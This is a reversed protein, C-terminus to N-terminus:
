VWYVRCRTASSTYHNGKQKASFFGGGAVDIWVVGVWSRKLDTIILKHTSTAPQTNLTLYFHFWFVIQVIWYKSIRYKTCIKFQVHRQRCVARVYTCYIYKWCRPPQKTCVLAVIQPLLISTYVPYFYVTQRMTFNETPAVIGSVPYVPNRYVKCSVVKGV